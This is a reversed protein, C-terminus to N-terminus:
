TVEEYKHSGYVYKPTYRDYTNNIIATGRDAGSGVYLTNPTRNVYVPNEYSSPIVRNNECYLMKCINYLGWILVLGVICGLVILLIYIAPIDATELITTPTTELNTTQTTTQTSVYQLYFSQSIDMNLKDVSEVVIKYNGDEEDFISWLLTSGYYNSVIEKIPFHVTNMSFYTTDNSYLYVNYNTNSNSSWEIYINRPGNTFTNISLGTTNFIDSYFKVNTQLQTFKLRKPYQWYQSIFIPIKWDYYSDDSITSLFRFDGIQSEWDNDYMELELHMTGPMDWTIKYTNNVSWVSSANPTLVNGLSLLIPICYM